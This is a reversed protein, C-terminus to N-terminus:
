RQRSTNNEYYPYPKRVRSASEYPSYYNEVNFRNKSPSEYKNPSAYQQYRQPSGNAM